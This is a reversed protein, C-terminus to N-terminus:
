PTEQQGILVGVPRFARGAVVATPTCLVSNDSAAITRM